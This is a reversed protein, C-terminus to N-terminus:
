RLSNRRSSGQREIKIVAIDTSPDTGIKTAKYVHQAEGITVDIDDAGEVVHNNTLIYGDPSVIVGSGLGLPQRRGKGDGKNADAGDRKPANNNNNGRRNKPTPAPAQQNDDDDPLGFFRRFTPDNFLPNNGQGNQPPM